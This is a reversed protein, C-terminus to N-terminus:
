TRFNLYKNYVENIKRINTTKKINQEYELNLSLLKEVFVEERVLHKVFILELEEELKSIDTRDFLITLDSYKADYVRLFLYTLISNLFVENITKGSILPIILNLKNLLKKLYRINFKKNNDKLQEILSIVNDKNFIEVKESFLNFSDEISPDYYLEYDVIKESYSIFVESNNSKSITYLSKNTRDIKQSHLLDLNKLEDNNNIIVIKCKKQEKLESIYGLVESISLNISIREFDDFCIVIDQFDKESILSSLSGLNVGFGFAQFDPFKSLLAGTKGIDSVKMVIERKIDDISNKGFLSVYVHKDQQWKKPAYNNWFYTKGVGGHVKLHFM